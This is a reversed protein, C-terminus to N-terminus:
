LLILEICRAARCSDKGDPALFRTAGSGCKPISVTYISLSQSSGCDSKLYLILRVLRVRVDYLSILSTITFIRSHTRVYRGALSHRDVGGLQLVATSVPFGM